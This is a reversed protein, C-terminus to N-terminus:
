RAPPSVSQARFNANSKLLQALLAPHYGAESAAEVIARLDKPLCRGGFGRSSEFVATHSRDVRPDLLWAERVTHWDAGFVKCIEFFENVFGVKTALYANEMYKVIEAERATCQFYIKDPGLIACIDTIMQRRDAESGGVIMFPIQSPGAAHFNSLYSSEGFYEPSFCVRKGTLLILRDTTGPPVTSRLLIRDTPLASVADIVNDTRCSGDENMPTGVCVIAFSCDSLESYPYKEKSAIDYTVLDAFPGFVEAMTQGVHGMGIIGIKM